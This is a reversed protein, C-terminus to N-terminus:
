DVPVFKVRDGVKLLFMDTDPGGPTGRAVDFVKVPTHGIINWGGPSEVTYIGTHEGGIAVSGPRIRPRPVALRPMHLRPHLGGLYPFGPAFGIMEVRYVPAAHLERIEAVSMQKAEALRPLDEGNYTVPIEKITAPIPPIDTAAEFRELLRPAIQAPDPVREPDFELLITTLAPVYEILGQVPHYEIAAVIAQGRRFAEEDARDAWQFLLARPGYVIWRLMTEAHARSAKWDLALLEVLLQM